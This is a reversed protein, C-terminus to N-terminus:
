DGTKRLLYLFFPVGIVAMVIGAPIEIPAFLTRSITDALVLVIAGLISSFPLLYLHDSGIIMRAMHPVILGVFGILGVNAVSIGTLFCAFLSLKLRKRPINFGLNIAFNDGLQLINADRILTMAGVIGILTYPLIGYVHNWNKGNLSGNLWSLVGQIEDSFLIFMLGTISGLISNVAVGALIVRLPKLGKKWALLFVLACALAGGIFATLNMFLMANPFIIMVILASVSAGASVGTLGPDALPNKMVAQLLVGALSLNCGVMLAILIRPIRIDWLISKLIENNYDKIFLAKIIEQLEFNVSGFRVSFLSIMVLILMSFLIIFTKRNVMSM